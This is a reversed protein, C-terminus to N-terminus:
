WPCGLVREERLSVSMSMGSMRTSFPWASGSSYSETIAQAVVPHLESETAGAEQLRLIEAAYTPSIPTLITRERGDDSSGNATFGFHAVVRVMMGRSTAAQERARARVQPQWESETEEVLAAQLRKQPTTLQGARYRQVTRTSVGLREALAKTSRKARTYLFEMQAKASKPAPRTFVKREARALAELIKGRQPAPQQSDDITM